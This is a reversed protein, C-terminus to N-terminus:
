SQGRDYQCFGERVRWARSFVEDWREEGYKNLVDWHETYGREGVDPIAQHTHGVLHIRSAVGAHRYDEAIVNPSRAFESLQLASM